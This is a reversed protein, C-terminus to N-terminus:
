LTYYQLVLKFVPLRVAGVVHLIKFDKNLGDEEERGGREGRRGGVLFVAM